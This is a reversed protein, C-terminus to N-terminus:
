RVPRPSLAREAATRMLQIDPLVRLWLGLAHAGQRALMGLGGSNRLGRERAAKLFPTESPNYILDYALADKRLHEWPVIAAVAEGRDGGKMGASTAQVIIDANKAIDGWQLRM